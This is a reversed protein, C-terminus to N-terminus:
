SARGLVFSTLATLQLVAAIGIWALASYYADANATPSGIGGFKTLVMLMAFFALMQFIAGVLKALSFDNHHHMRTLTRAHRLLEHLVESDSMGAIAQGHGNGEAPPEVPPGPAAAPPEPAAVPAPPAPAPAPTPAAASEDNDSAPAPQVGAPQGAHLIVRAAQVLNHVDYDAQITNRGPINAETMPRVFITRCGARRGAEIDRASDGIMWSAALDLDMEAAARLLMGPEPKREDCVRRYAELKAEPHHPCYYIADLRVGREDLQRQLEAHITGLTEESFLGRAIGSQNTVVILRYGAKAFAKLAVDAGGLLRVGSPDGLYGPDEILTGDRDLFVAKHPM